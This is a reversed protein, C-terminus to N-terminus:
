LFRFGISGKFSGKFPAPLVELLEGMSKRGPGSCSTAFGEGFEDRETPDPKPDLTRCPETKEVHM